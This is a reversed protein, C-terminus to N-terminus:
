VRWRLDRAGVVVEIAAGQDAAAEAFLHRRVGAHAAVHALDVQEHVCSSAAAAAHLPLKDVCAGGVRSIGLGHKGSRVVVGLGGAAGDELHHRSCMGRCCSGRRWMFAGTTYQSITHKKKESAKYAVLTHSKQARRYFHGCKRGFGIKPIAPWFDRGRCWSAPGVITISKMACLWRNLCRMDIPM